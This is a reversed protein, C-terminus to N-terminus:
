EMMQAEIEETSPVTATKVKIEPEEKPQSQISDPTYVQTPPQMPQINQQTASAFYDLMTKANKKMSMAMMGKIAIDKVFMGIVYQEDTVGLGRKMFIRTMAPKVKDNFSKDYEFIEDAQANHTQIYELANVEVDESIPLRVEKDIEGDLIRKVVKNEDIKSVKAGLQHLMEYGDLVTDVLQESALKKEKDPLENMAPNSINDFASPEKDPVVEESYDTFDPIGSGFDPEPIDGIEHMVTTENYSREIVPEDIPSYSETPVDFQDNIEEKQQMIPEIEKEPEVQTEINSQNINRKFINNKSIKQESTIPKRGRKKPEDSM